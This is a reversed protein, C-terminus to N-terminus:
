GKQKPITCVFCTGVNEESFTSITGGHRAIIQQAISLGLGTGHTARKTRAQDVQYLPKFIHQLEHNSIGKGENQVVIYAYDNRHFPLATSVFPFLWEQEEALDSFAAIWITSGRPTHEIANMMLNDVVRILQQPSVEFTGCVDNFQHLTINKENCLPEYDSVLMDFFESGDVTVFELTYDKSQLLSHMTLDDLMQKIFDAKEIIVQRYSRQEDITLHADNELSEAYAKISTLPTKLDHSISAMLYEKERQELEIVEQAALIQKRMAYFHQKLEGIEDSGTATEAVVEGSAFASMEDMLQELRMNVRQHIIYAMVIYIIIFISIFVITVFWGRHIITKLLEDRTIRIEFFGILEHESFVPEKYTYALFEEQLEYLNQMLKDKPVSYFSEDESHFLILGDDNYLVLETRDDVLSWLVFEDANAGYLEPEYLQSVLQQINAYTQFYEEVHKESNYSTVSVFLFYVALIPLVM